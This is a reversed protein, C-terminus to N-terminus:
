KKRKDLRKKFDADFVPQYNEVITKNMIVRVKRSNYIDSIRPGFLSRRKTDKFFSGTTFFAASLADRTAGRRIRTVTGLRKDRVFVYKETEGSRWPAIFAGTIKKRSNGVRVSVGTKLQKAGYKMLGRAQKRIFITFTPNPKRADARRLTVLKGLKMSRAKINYNSTIFKRAATNAKRGVKNLTGATVRGAIKPLDDITKQVSRVDFNLKVFEAM